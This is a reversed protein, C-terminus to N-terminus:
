GPVLGRESKGFAATLFNDVKESEVLGFQRLVPVGILRGALEKVPLFEDIRHLVRVYDAAELDDSDFIGRDKWTPATEEISFPGAPRLYLKADDRILRSEGLLWLLVAAGQLSSRANTTVHTQPSRGLLISRILLASDPPVEGSGVLDIRLRAPKRALIAELEYAEDIYNGYSRLSLMMKSHRKRRRIKMRGKM